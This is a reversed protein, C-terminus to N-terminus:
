DIVPKVTQTIVGSCSCSIETVSDLRGNVYVCALVLSFPSAWSLAVEVADSMAEKISTYGTLRETGWDPDFVSATIKASKKYANM